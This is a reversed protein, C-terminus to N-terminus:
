IRGLEDGTHARAARRRKQAYLEQDAENLLQQVTQCKVPDFHGVGVSMSLRYPHGAERNHADINERLRDLLLSASERGAELPFATFEDGGLRAVIDASRYTRRLVAAADRLVQDGAAHGFRDNISKLEDVDAFILLLDRKRRRALTLHSEALTSFGRRNYVGTLEDVMSLRQLAAEMQRQNTIDLMSGMVAPRGGHTTRVSRVDLDILEGDRRRGRVTYEIAEIEGAIRQRLKEKVLARDEDAIVQLVSELALMEARSYGFIDALRRNAYLLRDDQILYVGTLSEEALSRFTELPMSGGDSEGM